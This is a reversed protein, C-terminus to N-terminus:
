LPIQIQYNWQLVGSVVILQVTFKPNVGYETKAKDM